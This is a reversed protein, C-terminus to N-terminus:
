IRNNINKENKSYIHNIYLFCIIISTPLLHIVYRPTYAINEVLFYPFITAFLVIPLGFNIKFYKRYNTIVILSILIALVNFISYIKPMTPFYQDVGFILRSFTHYYTVYLPDPRLLTKVATINFLGISGGSFYNRIFISCFGFIIIFFYLIIIKKNNMCFSILVKYFDFIRLKEFNRNFSYKMLFILSLAVPVHEERLWIQVIGCICIIIFRLTSISEKEIILYFAIFLFIMSYYESLGVVLIWRFNDATYISLLLIGAINSLYKNCNFRKLIKIVLFSCLIICWVNLIKFAFASQGFIIHSFAYIYRSGPRFYFIKEGAELWKGDVVIQRSYEQFTTWDDGAGAWAFTELDNFFIKTFVFLCTPISIIKFFSDLELNKYNMKYIIFIFLNLIILHSIGFSFSGVGDVIKLHALLYNILIDLVLYSLFFLISLFVNISNQKRIKSLILILILLFFIFVLYDYITSFFKFFNFFKLKSIDLETFIIKEKFLDKKKNEENIYPSFKWDKGKYKVNINFKYIGKSLKRNNLNNDFDIEDFLKEEFNYKEIKFNIIKSSKGFDITINKENNINLYFNFNYFMELTKFDDYIDIYREKNNEKFNIKSVHTWDLPFNGQSTWSFKQITSVKKNWFTDYTKVYNDQFLNKHNFFQKVNVGTQYSFSLIIKIFIIVLGLFFIQKSFIFDKLFFCFYPIILIGFITEFKNLFPLGDFYYSGKTPYFFIIVFLIFNILGIYKNKITM